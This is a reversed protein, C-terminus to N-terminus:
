SRKSATCYSLLEIEAHSCPVNHSYAVWTEHCWTDHIMWDHMMYWAAAFITPVDSPSSPSLGFEFFTTTNEWCCTTAVSIAQGQTVRINLSNRGGILLGGVISFGGQVANTHKQQNQWIKGLSFFVDCSPHLANSDGPFPKILTKQKNNTRM